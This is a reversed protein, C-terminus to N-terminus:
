LPLCTPMHLLIRHLWDGSQWRVQGKAERCYLNWWGSADSVFYLRGTAGCFQPQQASEEPGGAVRAANAVAGEPTVDAVWVESSDWPM